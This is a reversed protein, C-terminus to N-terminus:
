LIKTNGDRALGCSERERCLLTLSNKCGGKVRGGTTGLEIIITIMECFKMLKVIIAEDNKNM